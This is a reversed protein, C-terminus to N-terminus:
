GKNHCTLCLQDATNAMVLLKAIGSGNHVDHCSSCQVDGGADLLADTSANDFFDGDAAVVTAYDISIPHDNTLDIVADGGPDLIASSGPTLTTMTGTGGDMYGQGDHCGLCVASIGTPAAAVAGAVITGRFSNDYMTYTRDAADATDAVNGWLPVLTGDYGSGHPTHCVSCSQLGVNWAGAANFDHASGTFGQGAAQGALAFVM